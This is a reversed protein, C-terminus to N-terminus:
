KLYSSNNPTPRPKPISNINKYAGHVDHIYIFKIFNSVYKHMKKVIQAFQITQVRKTHRCPMEENIKQEFWKTCGHNSKQKSIKIINWTDSSLLLTLWICFNRFLLVPNKTEIIKTEILLDKVSKLRWWIRYAICKRKQKTKTQQQKEDQQRELRYDHIEFNRDCWAYKISIINSIKTQNESIKKKKIKHKGFHNQENTNRHSPM